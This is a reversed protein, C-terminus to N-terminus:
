CFYWDANIRKCWASKTESRMISLHFLIESIKITLYHELKDMCKHTLVFVLPVFDLLANKQISDVTVMM